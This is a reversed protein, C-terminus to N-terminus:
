KYFEQSVLKKIKEKSKEVKKKKDWIEWKKAVKKVEMTREKKTEEEKKERRGKVEIM